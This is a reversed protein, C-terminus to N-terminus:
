DSEIKTELAKNLILVTENAVCCKIRTYRFYSVEISGSILQFTNTKLAEAM